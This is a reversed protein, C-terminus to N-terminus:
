LDDVGRDSQDAVRLQRHLVEELDDGTRIKRGATEDVPPAADLLRVAGSSPADGDASLGDDLLRQPLAIALLDHEGFNGVLHVFGPKVLADGLQLAVLLDVADRLDS